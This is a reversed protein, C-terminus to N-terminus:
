LTLIKKVTINKEEEENADFYEAFEKGAVLLKELIELNAIM